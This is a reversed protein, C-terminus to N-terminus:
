PETTSVNGICFTGLHCFCFCLLQMFVELQIAMSGLLRICRRREIFTLSLKWASTVLQGAESKLHNQEALAFVPMIGEALGDDRGEL